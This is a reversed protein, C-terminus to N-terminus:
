EPQDGGSKDGHKRAAAVLPQAYDFLSWLTIGVVAVYAIWSITSSTSAGLSAGYVGVLALAILGGGQVVAKLKGSLRAARVHGHTAEFVRIYAVAVDRFLLALFAWWPFLGALLLTLFASLRYISDSFPDFIKGFNSVAGLRRAVFGDLADTLECLILLGVAWLGRTAPDPFYMVFPIILLVRSFTLLNPWLLAPNM